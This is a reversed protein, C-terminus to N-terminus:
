GDVRVAAGLETAATVVLLDDAFQEPVVGVQPETKGEPSAPTAASGAVIQLTVLGNMMDSLVEEIVERTPGYELKERHFDFAASIQVTGNDVSVPQCSRLLAEITSSGAMRVRALLKPWGARLAELSKEMEVRPESAPEEPSPALEREVRERRAPSRRRERRPKPQAMEPEAASAPLVVEMPATAAELGMAARVLAVELGSRDDAGRTVQVLRSLWKVLKETGAGALSRVRESAGPVDAGVALHLAERLQAVLQRRMVRADVGEAMVTAVATLTAGVEGAAVAELVDLLGDEAVLGLVQRVDDVGLKGGSSVQELLSLADRMAGQAHRAIVVLAEDEAEINEQECVRRLQEAIDGESIPRFGFRQCRSIITAPLKHPETTALIFIAYPPPEELTKLLANFAANSLMHVEDIVYVKFRAQAPAFGVKEKLERVDDVGNNSAADIEVLDMLRGENVARCAKCENCPRESEESLCNVAKAVLRACTTKGTGRPGSFLYAHAVRDGQLANRLTQVVHGQGIVEDFTQPRWKRYLM